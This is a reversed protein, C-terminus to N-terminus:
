ECLFCTGDLARTRRVLGVRDKARCILIRPSRSGRRQAARVEWRLRLGFSAVVLTLRRARSIAMEWAQFGHPLLAM